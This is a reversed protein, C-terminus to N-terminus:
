SALEPLNNRIYDARIYDTQEEEFPGMALQLNGPQIGLMLSYISVPKEMRIVGDYIGGRIQSLYVLGEKMTLKRAYKLVGYSKYVEDERENRHGKMLDIRTKREQGALQAAVRQVSVILEDETQGLTKQNSVYYLAGYNEAPEGFVGKISIGIRKAEDMLSRFQKSNSIVPLHLLVCARLGTGVNTPFATLYGYKQDFAYPFRKSIWDDTLNAQDWTSRFALGGQICQIRIHDDGCLLISESENESLFLGMPSTKKALGSNLVRREALGRRYADTSRSLDRYSLGLGSLGERLEAVMQGAEAEEMKGPFVHGKINRALRVRTFIYVDQQKQVDEYWKSM